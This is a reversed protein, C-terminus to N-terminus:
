ATSSLEVLPRVSMARASPTVATSEEGKRIAAAAPAMAANKQKWRASCVFRGRVAIATISAPAVVPPTIAPKTAKPSESPAV